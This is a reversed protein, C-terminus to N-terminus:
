EETTQKKPAPKPPPTVLQLDGTAPDRQYSGGSTPNNPAAAPADAALAALQSTAGDELSNFATGEDVKKIM